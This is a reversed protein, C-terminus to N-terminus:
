PVPPVEELSAFADLFRATIRTATALDDLRVNEDPAHARCDDRAAGLTTAPVRYPACVQYMPVTGPASVRVVPELGTVAESAAIATRVVPHDPPTWWAPEGEVFGVEVDPFGAEDLHRRVAAVIDDPRQDPVIRIDLRVHAEAPTITKAGPGTYGSWLGQINLTPEFTAARRAAVGELGAVFREIGFETRIEEFLREPIADALALQADTPPRIGADLGEIGPRGDPTWMTALAQVLRVPASPLVVALSSHADYAISKVSLTLVVIGRGGGDIVPRGSLDLGGGEILAADARRLDGGLDLLDDLNGSGYEEEGEVLFRLRCPLPGVTELWAEVAWVRPLLEGKNDTAGRAFLRGDRITPEYAPTTWLEHPVAPQVDYHQVLNLTRPGDGIEGVVLPAVDPLELVRVDAGLTRLRGATWEAAGRLAPMDGLESPYRCLEALEDTWRPLREDVLADFAAFDITPRVATM